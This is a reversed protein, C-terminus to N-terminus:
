AVNPPACSFGVALAADKCAAISASVASVTSPIEYRGLGRTVVAPARSFEVSAPGLTYFGLIRAPADRPTAVFCKAGGSEHNQRAYRKEAGRGLHSGDNNSSL